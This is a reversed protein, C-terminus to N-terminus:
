LRERKEWQNMAIRPAVGRVKVFVVEGGIGDIRDVFGTRYDKSELALLAFGIARM